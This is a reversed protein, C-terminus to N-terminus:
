AVTTRPPRFLADGAHSDHEPAVFSSVRLPAEPPSIVQQLAAPIAAPSVCYASCTQCKDAASDSSYANSAVASGDRVSRAGTDAHHESATAIDHELSKSAAEPLHHNGPACLLGTAGLGVQFPVTLLLLLLVHRRFIRVL